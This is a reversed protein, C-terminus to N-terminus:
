GCLPLRVIFETGKGIESLVEISGKHLEVLRKVIYLGLGTSEEGATGKRSADTFRNFLKDINESDIGIGSDSVRIEAFKDCCNTSIRITGNSHTFKIANTCLNEIIRHLKGIDVMSYLPKQTLRFDMKINKNMARFIFEDKTNNLTLNIDHKILELSENNLDMKNNYLLDKVLTLAKESMDGSIKMYKNESLHKDKVKAINIAMQISGVYNKLDHSIM